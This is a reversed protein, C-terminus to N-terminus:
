IVSLMPTPRFTWEEENLLFHYSPKQNQLFTFTHTFFLSIFLLCFSQQHGYDLLMIKFKNIHFIYFFSAVPIQSSINIFFSSDCNIVTFNYATCKGILQVLFIKYFLSINHFDTRRAQPSRELLFFIILAAHSFFQFDSSIAGNM